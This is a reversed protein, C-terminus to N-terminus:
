GLRNFIVEKFEGKEYSRILELWGDQHDFLYAYEANFMDSVKEVFQDIVKEEEVNNSLGLGIGSALQLNSNIIETTNYIHLIYTTALFPIGLLFVAGFGVYEVLFYLTLAFPIVVLDSAYDVLMKNSFYTPPMTKIMSYLKLVFDKIFIHTFQYCFVLLIVPWFDLLGVKGGVFDFVYASLISLIFFLTSNKFFRNLTPNSNKFTFLIALISIQMVIVEALVGYKLFVPITVWMVLFLPRGSRRIPYLLTVFGFLTYIIIHLWNIDYHNYNLFLYTIGPPVIFLWLVFTWITTRNYTKMM